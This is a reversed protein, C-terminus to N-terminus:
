KNEIIIILYEGLVYIKKTEIFNEFPISKLNKIGTNM